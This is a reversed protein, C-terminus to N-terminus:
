GPLAYRGPLGSGLPERLAVIRQVFRPPDNAFGDEYALVRLGTCARLLEGPRLLFAPNQPRGVTENGIAFTEYILLGGPALAAQLLPWLPRHLYHTVLVADFQRGPLPWPNAEIDAEICEAQDRLGHLAAADRDLATVSHGQAALWRVHRGAGCAVDLVRAGQPLWHAWRLLWPSPAGTGHVGM